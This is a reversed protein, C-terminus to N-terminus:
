KVLLKKYITSKENDIQVVYFGSKLNLNLTGNTSEVKKSTIKRGSLDFIHIYSINHTSNFNLKDSAPNPYIEFNYDTFISKLGLTQNQNNWSTTLSKNGSLQVYRNTGGPDVAINETGVTIASFDEQENWNNITFKFQYTKEALGTITTTWTGDGNNTLPNGNGSWSNIEGSVYVTKGSTDGYATMDVTLTLDHPGPNTDSESCGNWKATTVTTAGDVVITRNTNGYNTTTCIDGKTFGEQSAWDKTIFKYEYYGNNLSLTGTWTGDGNDSLANSAGGWGNFTGAIYVGNITDINSNTMDVTFTVNNQGFSLAFGFFLLLHRM